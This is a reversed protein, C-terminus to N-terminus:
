VDGIDVRQAVEQLCMSPIKLHNLRHQWQHRYPSGARVAMDILVPWVLMDSARFNNVIIPSVKM